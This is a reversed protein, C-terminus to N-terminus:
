PDVPFVRCFDSARSTGGLALPATGRGARAAGLQGLGSRVSAGAAHRGASAAAPAPASDSRRPQARKSSRTAASWLGRRLEPRPSPGQRLRLQGAFIQQVRIGVLWRRGHRLGGDAGRELVLREGLDGRYFHNIKRVCIREQNGQSKGHMEPQKETIVTPNRQMRASM